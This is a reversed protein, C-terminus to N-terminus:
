TSNFRLKGTTADISIDRHSANASNPSVFSTTAESMSHSGNRESVAIFATSSSLRGSESSSPPLL